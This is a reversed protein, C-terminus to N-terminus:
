VALAGALHELHRGEIHLVRRASRVALHVVALVKEALVGAEGHASLKLAFESRHSQAFDVGEARREASLVGVSRAMKCLEPHHLRLHGEVVHVVIHVKCLVEDLVKHLVSKVVAAVVKLEEVIHVVLLEDLPKLIHDLCLEDTKRVGLSDLNELCGSRLELVRNVPAHVKLGLVLAVKHLLMEAARDNHGVIRLVDLSEIHLLVLVALGDPTHVHEERLDALNDATGLPLRRKLLQVGADVLESHAALGELPIEVCPTESRSRM